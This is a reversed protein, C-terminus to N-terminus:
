TQEEQCKLEKLQKRIRYLQQKIAAPTRGTLQAIQACSARDLYLYLEQRDDDSDLREILNYLQTRLADTDSDALNDIIDQDIDVLTPLRKKHRLHQSVTHFAIRTVWTNVKCEGRFQLWKFWLTTVIEQYLDRFDEHDRGAYYLCAKIITGECQKLM